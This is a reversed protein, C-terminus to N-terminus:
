LGLFIDYGGNITDLALSGFIGDITQSGPTRTLPPKLRPHQALILENFGAEEIKYCFSGRKATALNENTDSMLIVHDGDDIWNSIM